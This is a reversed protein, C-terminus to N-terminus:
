SFYKKLLTEFEDNLEPNNLEHHTLKLSYFIYLDGRKEIDNELNYYPLGKDKIFHNFYFNNNELKDRFHKSVVIKEDNFFDYTKDIGFYIQYLSIDDDIILDYKDLYKDIKIIPHNLINIFIKIDGRYKKFENKDLYDDGIGKFIYYYEYNLLSLYITTTKYIFDLSSDLDNIFRKVKVKIKKIKKNYIEEITINVNLNICEKHKNEETTQNQFIKNFNYNSTQQSFRTFYLNKIFEFFIKIKEITEENFYNNNESVNSKNKILNQYACNIKKFEVDNSNYKDPHYKLALKKYAKKIEDLSADSKVGLIKYDM